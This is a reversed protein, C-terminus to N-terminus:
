NATLFWGTGLMSPESVNNRDLTSLVLFIVSVPLVTKDFKRLAAAEKEPEIYIVTSEGSSYDEQAMTDVVSPQVKIDKKLDSEM